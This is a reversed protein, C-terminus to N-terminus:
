EVTPAEVLCVTGGWVSRWKVIGVGSVIWLAEYREGVQHTRQNVRYREIRWAEFTGAPVEVTERAVRYEVETRVLGCSLELISGRWPTVGELVKPFEWELAGLVNAHIRIADFTEGVTWGSVARAHHQGACLTLRVMGEEVTARRMTGPGGVLEPIWLEADEAVPRAEVAFDRPARDELLVRYVWAGEGWAPLEVEQATATAASVLVWGVASWRM